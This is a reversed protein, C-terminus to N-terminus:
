SSQVRDPVLWAAAFGLLVVAAAAVEAPVTVDTAVQVVWVAVTVLAGALTGSAVKRTPALSPQTFGVPGVTVPAPPAAPSGPAATRGPQPVPRTAVTTAHGAAHRGVPTRGPQPREAAM